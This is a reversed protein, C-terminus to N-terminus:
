KRKKLLIFFSFGLVVLIIVSIFNAATISILRATSKKSLFVSAVSLISIAIAILSLTKKYKAQKSYPAVPSETIESGKSPTQNPMERNSDYPQNREERKEKIKQYLKYGGYGLATVAAASGAVVAGYKVVKGLSGTSPSKSPSYPTSKPSPAPFPKAYQYNFSSPPELIIRNNERDVTTTWGREWTGSGSDFQGPAAKEFVGLIYELENMLEPELKGKLYLPKGALQKIKTMYNTM